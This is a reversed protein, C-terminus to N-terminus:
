APLIALGTQHRFINESRVPDDMHVKREKGTASERQLILAVFAVPLMEIILVQVDVVIFVEERYNFRYPDMHEPLKQYRAKQSAADNVLARLAHRIVQSISVDFMKAAEEAQRKLTTEMRITLNALKPM